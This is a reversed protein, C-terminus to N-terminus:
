LRPMGSDSKSPLDAKGPGVAAGAGAVQKRIGRTATGGGTGVARGEAGLQLGDLDCTGRFGARGRGEASEEAPERPSEALMTQPGCVSTAGTGEQM